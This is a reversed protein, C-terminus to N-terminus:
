RKEATQLYVWHDGDYFALTPQGNPTNKGSDLLVDGKKPAVIAKTDCPILNMLVPTGVGAGHFYERRYPGDSLVNVKTGTTAAPLRIDESKRVTFENGASVNDVVISMRAFRRKDSTATATTGASDTAGPAKTRDLRGSTADITSDAINSFRITPRGTQEGWDAEKWSEMSNDAVNWREKRGVGTVLLTEEESLMMNERISVDTVTGLAEICHKAGQTEFRVGQIRICLMYGREGDMLIAARGGEKNSMDGGYVSVDSTVPGILYLNVETGKGGYVGWFCGYFALDTNCGIDDLKQYPSTVNFYNRYTFIYGHGGPANNWFMCNFYRNVESGVNYVCALSYNGDMFLFSFNSCGSSGGGARGHLIGVNASKSTIRLQELTIMGTATMDIIPQGHTDGVIDTGSGDGFIRIGKSYGLGSLNLTKTVTYYGSPIYLTGGNVRLADFAANLNPFDTAVLPAGVAQM